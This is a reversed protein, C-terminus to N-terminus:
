SEEEDDNTIGTEYDPYYSRDAYLRNWENCFEKIARAGADSVEYDEYADDSQELDDLIVVADLTIPTEITGFVGEPWLGGAEEILEDPDCFYYRGKYYFGNGQYDKLGVKKAERWLELEEDDDRYPTM